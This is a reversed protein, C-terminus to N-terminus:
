WVLLPAPDALQKQVM